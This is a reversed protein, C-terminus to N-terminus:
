KRPTAPSRKATRLEPARRNDLASAIMAAFVHGAANDHDQASRGCSRQRCTRRYQRREPRPRRSRCRQLRAMTSRSGTGPLLLSIAACQWWDAIEFTMAKDIHLRCSWDRHSRRSWNISCGHGSCREPRALCIRSLQCVVQRLEDLHHGNFVAARQLFHFYLIGGAFHMPTLSPLLMPLNCAEHFDLALVPWVLGDGLANGISSNTMGSSSASRPDPLVSCPNRYETQWLSAARYDVLNGVPVIQDILASQSSAERLRCEVLLKGSNVPRMQGAGHSAEHVEVNVVARDGDLGDFAGNDVPGPFLAPDRRLDGSVLGALRDGDDARTRGTHGSGLLQGAGTM